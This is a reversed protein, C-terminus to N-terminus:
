LDLRFLISDAAGVAIPFAFPWHRLATAETPTRGVAFLPRPKGNQRPRLEDLLVKVEDPNGQGAYLADVASSRAVVKEIPHGCTRSIWVRLPVGFGFLGDRSSPDNRGVFAPRSSFVPALTVTNEIVIADRPTIREIASYISNLVPDAPRLQFDSTLLEYPPRNDLNGWTERYLRISLPALLLGLLIVAALPKKHALSGGTGAALLGLPLFAFLLVKYDIHENMWLLAMMLNIVAWVAVLLIATQNCRIQGRERLLHLCVPFALLMLPSQILLINTIEYLLAPLTDGLRFNPPASGSQLSLLYPLVFLSGLIAPLIGPLAHRHNGSLVLTGAMVGLVVVLGLWCFPYTLGALFTAIFILCPYLWKTKSGDRLALFSHIALLSFFIGLPFAWKVFNGAIPLGRPEWFPQAMGLAPLEPGLLSNAYLVLVVALTPFQAAPPFMRALRHVLWASGVLALLGILAWLLGPPLHTVSGFWAVPVNHFWYFNLPEGALFPHEPVPIGGFGGSQMALPVGAGPTQYLASAYLFGHDGVELYHHPVLLIRLAFPLTTLLSAALCNWRILLAYFALLGGGVSALVLLDTLNM